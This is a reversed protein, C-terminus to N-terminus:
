TRFSIRQLESKNMLAMFDVKLEGGLTSNDIDHSLIVLKINFNKLVKYILRKLTFNRILIYKDLIIFLKVKNGNKSIETLLERFGSVKVNSASYNEDVFVKKLYINNRSCYLKMEEM